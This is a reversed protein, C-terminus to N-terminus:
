EVASAGDQQAELDALLAMLSGGTDHLERRLAMRKTKLHGMRERLLQERRTDHSGTLEAILAEFKLEATTLEAMVTELPRLSESQKVKAAARRSKNYACFSPASKERSQWAKSFNSSRLKNSKPKRRQKLGMAVRKEAIRLAAFIQEPTRPDKEEPPLPKLLADIAGQLDARIWADRRKDAMIKKHDRDPKYHPDYYMRM